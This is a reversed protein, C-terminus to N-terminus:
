VRTIACPVLSHLLAEMDTEFPIDYTKLYADFSDSGLVKMIKLLQDNNDSGRFFHEKHFLQQIM